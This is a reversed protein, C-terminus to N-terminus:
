LNMDLLRLALGAKLAIKIRKFELNLILDLNLNMVNRVVNRVTFFSIQSEGYIKSETEVLKGNRLSSSVGDAGFSCFSFYVSLFELLNPFAIM